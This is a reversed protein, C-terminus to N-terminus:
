RSPLGFEARIQALALDGQIHEVEGANSASVRRGIENWTSESFIADDQTQVADWLREALDRRSDADLSMAATFVREASETIM